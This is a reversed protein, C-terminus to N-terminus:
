GYMPAAAGESGEVAHGEHRWYELGGIMEKVRFGLAALRAAAKCAANCGPGWCYVVQTRNRDLVSVTGEDITRHPLNLAGPVHCVDFAEPSRADIVQIRDPVRELDLRVDAPDTEVSLRALFHRGAQEPEAPPHEDVFSFRGRRTSEVIPMTSM